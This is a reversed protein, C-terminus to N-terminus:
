QRINPLIENGAAEIREGFERARAFWTSPKLTNVFAGIPGHPQPPQPAEEAQQQEYPRANPDYPPRQQYPRDPVTVYPQQAAAVPPPAMIVPPPAAAVPPLPAPAPAAALPPAMPAVTVPAPAPPVVYPVSAVPVSAVRPETRPVPNAVNTPRQAPQPAAQPAPAPAAVKVASQDKGAEAGADKDLVRQPEVARERSAFYEAAPIATPKAVVSVQSTEAVAVADTESKLMAMRPQQLHTSFAHNYGSILGAAILTAVVSPWIQDLFKNLPPLLRALVDLM